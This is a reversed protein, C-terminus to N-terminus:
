LSFTITKNPGIPVVFFAEEANEVAGISCASTGRNKNTQDVGNVPVNTCISTDGNRLLGSNSQPYHIFTSGFSGGVRQLSDLGPDGQQIGAPPPAANFCSLDPTDEIWSTTALLVPTYSASCDSAAYVDNSSNAIVANFLTLSPAFMPNGAVSISGHTGFNTNNSVTTNVLEVKSANMYVAGGGGASNGSITSNNISVSGRYLTLGGGLYGQVLTDGVNNIVASQTITLSANTTAMSFNADLGGGKFSTSNGSIISRTIEIGESSFVSLGGGYAGATNASVVSNSIRLRAEIASGFFNASLGGGDGSAVNNSITSQNMEVSSSYFAYIGGGEGASTNNSVTVNDLALTNGESVYIAGGYGREEMAEDLYFAHGNQLTLSNINLEVAASDQMGILRFSPTAPASSRELTSGNGQITINSAILPLGGAGFLEGDMVSETLTITSNDPLIITDDGSGATCGDVALNTNAARIANALTCSVGVSIDAATTILSMQALALAIITKDLTNIPPM